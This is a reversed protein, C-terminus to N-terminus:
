GKWIRKFDTRLLGERVGPLLVKEFELKGQRHFETMLMWSVANKETCDAEEFADIFAPTFFRAGEKLYAPAKEWAAHMVEPTIRAVTFPPNPMKKVTFGDKTVTGTSLAPLLQYNPTHEEFAMPVTALCTGHDAFGIFMPFNLRCYHIVEPTTVSLMLVMNEGGFEEYSKELAIHPAMGENFIKISVNQAIMDSVHYMNRDDDCQALHKEIGDYVGKSKLEYGPTRSHIIGINGPLDLADTEALLRDLNGALKRYHIKGEHLTFVLIVVRM